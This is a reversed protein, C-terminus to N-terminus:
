SLGIVKTNDRMFTFYIHICWTQGHDKRWLCSREFWANYVLLKKLIFYDVKSSPKSTKLNIIIVSLSHIKYHLHSNLEGRCVNEVCLM